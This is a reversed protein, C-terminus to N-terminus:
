IQGVWTRPACEEWRERIAEFEKESLPEAELLRANDRWRAPKKTGVIATHVGPVGLTFRLATSVAEKTNQKLFQYGLKQLRSWYEHHYDNAPKAGTLDVEGYAPQHSGHRRIVEQMYQRYQELKAM